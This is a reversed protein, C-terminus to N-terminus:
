LLSPILIIKAVNWFPLVQVTKGDFDKYVAGQEEYSPLLSIDGGLCRTTQAGATLGVITTVVLTKIRKM